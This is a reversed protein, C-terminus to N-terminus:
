GAAAPEPELVLSGVPMETTGIRPVTAGVGGHTVRGNLPAGAKSDMSDFACDRLIEKC